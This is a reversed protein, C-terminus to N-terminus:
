PRFIEAFFTTMAQWSRRDAAENYAAGTSPDNGAEKQTFSHVAGGYLVVQYDVGAARMEKELAAVHEIPEFPDDAGHLVLVKGKISRADEPTPTELGGHFSVVGVLNAGARALELAGTGGFCYGIAAVRAPDVLPSALLEDLGAKLRARYLGRDGKYKGALAAAEKTTAPRVGRGYVDVALAVYGLSALMRARMRENETLGMWQHVVLVGPRRGAVADDWALTGELVADGQRYTVTRTQVMAHAGTAALMVSMAILRRIM